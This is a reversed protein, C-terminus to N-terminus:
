VTEGRVRRSLRNIAGKLEFTPVFGTSTIAMEDLDGILRKTDVLDPMRDVVQEIGGLAAERIKWNDHMLLGHLRDASDPEHAVRGLAGAAEIAVEFSRDYTCDRVQREMDPDTDILDSMAAIASACHSRVEFYPDTLGGLLVSRVKSNWVGLRAVADVANRRIFGNHRFDGGIWRQPIPAPTRDTILDLLIDIKGRIRLVGVLKVAANRNRWNSDGLMCAARYRLYRFVEDNIMSEVLEDERARFDDLPKELSDALKAVRQEARMRLTESSLRAYSLREDEAARRGREDEDHGDVCRKEILNEIAEVTADVADPSALSLAAREMGELAATDSLLGMIQEALLDGAVFEELVGEVWQTDEYMVKAAGADALQIANMVQHDGALNSKPILISARGAACLESVMGAGTRSVVLDAAGYYDAMGDIFERGEYWGDLETADIGVMSMRERIDEAPDYATLQKGTSHVVRINGVSKLRPLAEIISRNITRAGMSGGVVLVLRVDSPIGLRTRAEARNMPRIEARVPYGVHIALPFESVSVAFSVFVMDAFRGVAANLKGPNTNQEHVVTCARSLGVRRLILNAFVVPASVYGGTGIVAVPRVRLLIGLSWLVGATLSALFRFARWMSRVDYQRAPVTWFEFDYRPVIEAEKGGRSGVWIFRADPERERIGNALAIGPTVHGGTGGGTLIYARRSV